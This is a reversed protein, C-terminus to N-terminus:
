RARARPAKRVLKKAAQAAARAYGRDGHILMLSVAGEMLLTIERAHERSSKVGARGLLTALWAEVAAKHRRAIVRAPHGRLDALEVVVRTFGTGSWHPKAAWEALEAFLADIMADRGAPMRAAIEQLRALALESSNALAAAILDDKSRFHHYLTRKTVRARAAVQDMSVRVFGQRWFLGYAAEVIRKRTRAAPRPM